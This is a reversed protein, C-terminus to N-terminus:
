MGYFCMYYEQLSITVVMYRCQLVDKDDRYYGYIVRTVCKDSYCRNLDGKFVREFLGTFGMQCRQLMGTVGMYCGTVIDQCGPLVSSIGRFM